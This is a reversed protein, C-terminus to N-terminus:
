VEDEEAVAAAEVEGESSSDCRGAKDKEGDEKVEDDEEEGGEKV